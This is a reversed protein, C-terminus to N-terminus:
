STTGHQRQINMDFALFHFDQRFPPLLDFGFQRAQLLVIGPRDQVGPHFDDAGGVVMQAGKFNVMMLCPSNMM